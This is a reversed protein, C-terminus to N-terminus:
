KMIHTQVEYQPAVTLLLCWASLAQGILWSLEPTVSPSNEGKGYGLCFIDELANTLSKAKQFYMKCNINVIKM